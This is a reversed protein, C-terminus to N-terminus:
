LAIRDRGKKILYETALYAGKYNDIHVTHAGPASNEILVLPIGYKKFEKQMKADPKITLMIVADAKKGYIIDQLLKSKVSEVGRTSHHELSRKFKGSEFLRREIGSLVGIVFPSSLYSSIFAIADSRGRALTRASGDPHFNMKKIVKLINKRTEEKMRGTENIVNSVTVYSVGATKAM